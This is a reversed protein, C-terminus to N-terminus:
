KIFSTFNKVDEKFKISTYQDNLIQKYFFLIENKYKKSLKYLKFLRKNLDLLEYYLINRDKKFDKIYFNLKKFYLLHNYCFLLSKKKDSKGHIMSIERINYMYGPIDINSYNEAFQFCM